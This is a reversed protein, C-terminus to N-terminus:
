AGANYWIHTFDKLGVGFMTKGRFVTGDLEKDDETDYTPPEADFFMLDDKFKSSGIMYATTSTMHPNYIARLGYKKLGNDNRDMTDPQSTNSLIADLVKMNVPSTMIWEPKDIVKLGKQNILTSYFYKIGEFVNDYSLTAPTGLNTLTDGSAMTHTTALVASDFMTYGSTVARNFIQAVVLDRLYSFNEGMEKGARGLFDGVHHDFKLLEYSFMSKIGYKVVTFTTPDLESMSDTFYPALQGKQRPLGMGAVGFIQETLRNTTKKTAISAWDWTVKGTGEMFAPLYDTLSVAKVHNYTTNSM